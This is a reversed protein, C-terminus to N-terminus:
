YRASSSKGDRDHDRARAHAQVHAHVRPTFELTVPGILGSLPDGRYNTPITRYHNALTNFVLVEIRNTGPAVQKSIDVRWPPAVRIGSTTGNVRVEATAVVKGLDLTVHSQAQEPTLSVTQRYWAGGSYCALAGVKSWDGAELIGPGCQLRIPEPLAAAGCAGTDPLVRLAVVAPSSLAHDTEFLGPSTLRLPQGNAWAQVTGRATVTFSRLGPPATFRFWEAPATGARPDFRIISPDDYWSMALPTRHPPQPHTGARKLVFYGRGAHDYRILLPNPGARLPLPQDLPGTRAGNLYVAAPTLVQSAHPPQADNPVSALILADTPEDVTASTWLYYRGGPLEEEYKFENLASSRKGIGLFHDTVNKKLGHWGQHGPDGELGQRWSFSYPRWHYAQGHSIVPSFESKQSRVESKLTTLTALQSDLADTAAHPPIPGLLFFQPGFDYTVREWQSDDFGPANWTSSDGAEIAHHFIRAEPGIIPDTVPLRFDGYRNDMTTELEFEWPDDLAITTPSLAPAPPPQRHPQRPNFVVVQAEYSELPLEVKTGTATEAMVRLPKVDGTWPDWLEASGRARFEVVSNRPADMVLYVDRPGIKRHLSRVPPDARTDPTFAALIVPPVDAPKSLRRHPEFTAAVRADLEPDNRGARDSAFPISGVNLVLGGAQAFRAATELSSWRVADMSPFVLARYSSDAVELRGQAIRARALSDADIFEFNIGAAMLARATDFAAQTSKSGDLGAEFPAVPYLIAVDAVFTGQSLLYSLREFYKLFVGMHRWYPM